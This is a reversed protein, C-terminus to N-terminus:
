DGVICRHGYVAVDAVCMVGSWDLGVAQRGNGVM